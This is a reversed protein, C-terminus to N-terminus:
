TIYLNCVGKWLLYERFEHLYYRRPYIDFYHRLGWQRVIGAMFYALGGLKGMRLICIALQFHMIYDWFEMTFHSTQDGLTLMSSIRFSCGELDAFLPKCIRKTRMQCCDRESQRNQGDLLNLMDKTSTSRKMTSQRCLCLLM